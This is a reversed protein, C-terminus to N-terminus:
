SRDFYISFANDHLLAKKQLETVDLKNLTSVIDLWFAEYSKSFTCLPFNSALMVRHFGFIRVATDVVEAIFTNSYHRDTMEWGSCKISVNPNQSLKKIGNTWNTFHASHQEVPPFGAHNIVVNLSKLPLDELIKVILNVTESDALDAQLEFILDCEELYSLNAFSTKSQLISLADADLIHRVGVLSNYAILEDIQKKFEHTKLMLNTSAITKFSLRCSSELWALERSPQRNDFGAEIHVFGMLTLEPALILDQESFSRHINQKDSWYPPNVSKLWHYEGDTLNFFHLHPDIIKYTM